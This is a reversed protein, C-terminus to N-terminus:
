SENKNRESLQFEQIREILEFKHDEYAYVWEETEGFGKEKLNVSISKKSLGLERVLSSASPFVLVVGTKKNWGLTCHGTSGALARYTTPDLDYFDGQCTTVQYRKKFLKPFKENSIAQHIHSASVTFHRAALALSSFEREWESFIDRVSVPRELPRGLPGRYPITVKRLEEPIETNNTFPRLRIGKYAVSHKVLDWVTALDVKLEIAAHNLNSVFSEKGSSDTMILSPSNVTGRMLAGHLVNLGNPLWELNDVSNHGINTDIHNVTLNGVSAKPDLWAMATLRHVGSTRWEGDKWKVSATTYGDGNRYYNREKGDADFVKGEYSAFFGLTGPIERLEEM